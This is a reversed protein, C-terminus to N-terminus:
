PMTESKKKTFSPTYAVLNILYEYINQSCSVLQRMWTQKLSLSIKPSYYFAFVLLLIILCFWIVILFLFNLSLPALRQFIDWRVKVWRGHRNNVDCPILQKEWRRWDGTKADSKQMQLYKEKKVHHVKCSNYLIFHITPVISWQPKLTALIDSYAVPGLDHERYIV